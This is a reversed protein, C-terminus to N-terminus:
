TLLCMLPFLFNMTKLLVAVQEHCLGVHPHLQPLSPVLLISAFSFNTTVTTKLAM